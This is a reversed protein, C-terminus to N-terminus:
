LPKRDYPFNITHSFSLISYWQQISWLSPFAKSEPLFKFAEPLLYFIAHPAAQSWVDWPLFISFLDKPLQSTARLQHRGLVSLIISQSIGCVDRCQPWQHIGNSHSRYYGLRFFWTNLSQNLNILPLLTKYRYLFQGNALLFWLFLYVPYLFPCFWPCPWLHYPLNLQIVVSWLFLWTQLSPSTRYWLELEKRM